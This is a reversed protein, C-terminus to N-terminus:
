GRQQLRMRVDGLAPVTCSFERGIQQFGDRWCYLRNDEAVVSVLRMLLWEDSEDGGDDLEFVLLTEEAVDVPPCFETDGLYDVLERGNIIEVRIFPDLDGQAGSGSIEWKNVKLDIFSCDNLSEDSQFYSVPLDGWAARLWVSRQPLVISSHMSIAYKRSM